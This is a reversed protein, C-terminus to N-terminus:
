SRGRCGVGSDGWRRRMGERGDSEWIPHLVEGLGGRGVLWNHYGSMAKVRDGGEVGGEERGRQDEHGAARRGGAGPPRLRRGRGEIGDGEGDLDTASRCWPLSFNVFDSSSGM